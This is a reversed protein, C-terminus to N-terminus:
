RQHPVDVPEPHKVIAKSAPDPLVRAGGPVGTVNLCVIYDGTTASFCQPNTTNTSSSLRLSIYNAEGYVFDHRLESPQDL